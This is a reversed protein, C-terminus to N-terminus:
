EEGPFPTNCNGHWIKIGGDCMFYQDFVKEYGRNRWWECLQRNWSCDLYYFLEPYDISMLTFFDQDGLHGKFHYKEALEEINGNNLFDNYFKSERIKDIDLLIVGSNFGTLGDPPPSGVKTGPNEKRYKWFIHRYVPQNERALGFLNQHSFYSFEDWLDRINADIRLDLDLQVMRHINNPMIRHMAISLFFIADKFYDHGGFHKQMTEVIPYVQKGLEDADHFHTQLHVDPHQTHHFLEEKAITKSEEDSVFHLHLIEESDFKAHSFLSELVTKLKKKLGPNQAVKTFMFLIHYDNKFEEAHKIAQDIHADDARKQKAVNSEKFAETETLFSEKSGAFSYFLYVTSFALLLLLIQLIRNNMLSSLLREERLSVQPM